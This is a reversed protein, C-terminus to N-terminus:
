DLSSSTSVSSHLTGTLNEVDGLLLADGDNAWGSDTTDLWTRELDTVSTTHHVVNDGGLKVALTGNTVDGLRTTHGVLEVVDNGVVGITHVLTNGNTTVPVRTGGEDVVHEAVLGVWLALDKNEKTLNTTDLLVTDNLSDLRTDDGLWNNGPGDTGDGAHELSLHLEAVSTREGVGLKLSSGLLVLAHPGSTEVDWFGKLVEWSGEALDVLAKDLIAGDLWLWLWSDGLDWNVVSPGLLEAKDTLWSGENGGDGVVTALLKQVSTHWDGVDEPVVDTDTTDHREQPEAASQWVVSALEQLHNEHKSSVVTRGDRTGHVGDNGGTGSLVQDRSKDGTEESNTRTETTGEIAGSLLEGLSVVLTEGWTVENVGHPLLVLETLAEEGVILYWCFALWITCDRTNTVTDLRAVVWIETDGKDLLEDVGVERLGSEEVVGEGDLRDGGGLLVVEDQVNISTNSDAEDVKEAVATGERRLLSLVVEPHTYKVTQEDESTGDTKNCVEEVLLSQTGTKVPM